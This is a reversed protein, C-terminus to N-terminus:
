YRSASYEEKTPQSIVYGAREIIRDYMPQHWETGNYPPGIANGSDMIAKKKKHETDNENYYTNSIGRVLESYDRTIGM